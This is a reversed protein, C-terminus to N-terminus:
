KKAEHAMGRHEAALARADDAAKQLSKSVSDCHNFTQSANKASPTSKQYISALESHEKAEAEYKAAEADFYQAIREHEAKTEATAILAKVESKSLPKDKAGAPVSVFVALVAVATTLLGAKITSTHTIHKLMKRVEQIRNIARDTVVHNGAMLEPIPTAKRTM